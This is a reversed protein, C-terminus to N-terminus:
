SRLRHVRSYNGGKPTLGVKLLIQRTNLGDKIGEIIAEDSVKKKGNNINKGCFTETQTHCNPCLWRLNELRHDKSNGNIHDLQLTLEKNQWSGTNGCLVCCYELLKKKKLISRVYLSSASSNEVFIEKGKGIRPDDLATKGKSWLQGTFHSCDISHKDILKKLKTLNGGGLLGLKEATARVSLCAAVADELDKIKIHKLTM